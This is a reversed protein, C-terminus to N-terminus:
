DILELAVRFFPQVSVWDSSKACLYYLEKESDFISTMEGQNKLSLAPTAQIEVWGERPSDSIQEASFHGWLKIGVPSYSIGCAGSGKGWAFDFEEIPGLLPATAKLFWWVVERYDECEDPSPPDAGDHEVANRLRNMRKLMRQRVAGWDELVGLWGRSKIDPYQKFGYIEDLHELRTQMTRKLALVADILDYKNCYNDLRHEAHKFSENARRRMTLDSSSRAAGGYGQVEMEGLDGNLWWSRGSNAM